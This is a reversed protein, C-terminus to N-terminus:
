HEWVTVKSYRELAYIQSAMHRDRLDEYFGDTLELVCYAIHNGFFVCAKEDIFNGNIDFDSIICVATYEKTIAQGSFGRELNFGTSTNAWAQQFVDVKFDCIHNKEFDGIYEKCVEKLYDENLYLAM